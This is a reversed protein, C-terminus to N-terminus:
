KSKKKLTSHESKLKIVDVHGTQTDLCIKIADDDLTKEEVIKIRAMSLFAKVFDVNSEQISLISNINPDRGMLSGGFIKAEIDGRKSGFEEMQYLLKEISFIGYKSDKEELMREAESEIFTGPLIIHNMGGIKKVPDFLVVSVCSGLVTQLIMPQDTVYLGGISIIKVPLNKEKKHGGHFNIM